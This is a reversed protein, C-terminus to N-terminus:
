DEEAFPTTRSLLWLPEAARLLLLEGERADIDPTAGADDTIAEALPMSRLIRAALQVSRVVERYSEIKLHAALQEDTRRKLM